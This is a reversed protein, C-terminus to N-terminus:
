GRREVMKEGKSRTKATKPCPGQKLPRDPRSPGEKKHIIDLDDIDGGANRLRQKKKFGERPISPPAPILVGKGKEPAHIWPCPAAGPLIWESEQPCNRLGGQFSQRLVGPKEPLQALKLAPELFAGSRIRSRFM